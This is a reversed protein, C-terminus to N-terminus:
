LSIGLAKLESRMQLPSSVLISKLGIEVAGDTNEQIDDLFVAQAPRVRLYDLVQRFSKKEPKRTGMEHSCFIKEFNRLTVEYKKRWVPEHIINTNTLAVLRYNKKLTSLLEDTGAFLDLYIGCWTKDFVENNMEVGLERCIAARFGTPSIENREFRNSVVDFLKKRENLEALSKGSIVSWKQFVPDFNIDFIVKGLDFIIAKFGSM